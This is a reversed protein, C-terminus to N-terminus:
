DQKSSAPSIESQAGGEDGLGELIAKLEAEMEGFNAADDEADYSDALTRATPKASAQHGTSSAITGRARKMTTNEQLLREYGRSLRRHGPAVKLGRVFCTAARALESRECLLEAFSALITPDDPALKLAREFLAAALMADRRTNRAFDAYRALAVAHTADARIARAHLREVAVAQADHGDVGHGGVSQWQAHIFLAYLSLASAKARREEASGGDSGDDFTAAKFLAAARDTDGRVRWMFLACNALNTQHM